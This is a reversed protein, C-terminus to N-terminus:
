IAVRQDEPNPKFTAISETKFDFQIVKLSYNESTRSNTVQNAPLFDLFVLNTIGTITSILAIMVVLTLLLRYLLKKM